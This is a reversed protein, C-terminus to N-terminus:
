PGRGGERLDEDSGPDRDHRANERGSDLRSGTDRNATPTRLSRDRISLHANPFLVALTAWWATRGEQPLVDHGSVTGWCVACRTRHLAVPHDGDTGPQQERQNQEEGRQGQATAPTVIRRGGRPGGAAPARRRGPRRSRARWWRSLCLRARRPGALACRAPRRGPRIWSRAPRTRSRASRSRAPRTRSRAPRIGPRGPCRGRRRLRAGLRALIRFLRRRRRATHVRTTATENRPAPEGKQDRAHEQQQRRASSARVGETARQVVASRSMGCMRSRRAAAKAATRAQRPVAVTTRPRRVSSPSGGGAARAAGTGAGGAVDEAPGPAASAGPGAPEGPAPEGSV